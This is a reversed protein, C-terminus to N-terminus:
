KSLLKLPIIVLYYAMRESNKFKSAICKKKNHHDNLLHNMIVNLLKRLMVLKNRRKRHDCQRVLVYRVDPCYLVLAKGTHVLWTLLCSNKSCPTHVQEYFASREVFTLREKEPGEVVFRYRIFSISLM